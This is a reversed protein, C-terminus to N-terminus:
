TESIKTAISFTEAPMVIGAPVLNPVVPKSTLRVVSLYHIFIEFSVILGNTLMHWENPNIM